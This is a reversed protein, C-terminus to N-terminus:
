GLQQGVTHDREAELFLDFERTGEVTRVETHSARRVANEFAGRTLYAHAILLRAPVRAVKQSGAPDPPSRRELDWEVHQGHAIFARAVRNAALALDRFSIRTDGDAIAERGGHAEGAAQVLGPITGWELDGLVAAEAM